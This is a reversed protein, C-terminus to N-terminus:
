GKIMRSTGIVAGSGNLAQVAVYFGAAAPPLQIATEFGARAASGAPSLTTPSSGALVRWSAVETAGNWSAYVVPGGGAGGTGGAAGSGSSPSPPVVAVAPPEVPQGTWPLAYTRYSEWDPPLHANFLVQGAANIESLYGAQGWGVMWDGNPLAQVNGQSDAVLRKSHEYSRVLTATMDQMDLAVEIARSQPQVQPSAGNDFFTIPGEPLQIADHQWATGTGAGM